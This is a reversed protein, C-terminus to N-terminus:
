VAEDYTAPPIKMDYDPASPDHRQDSWITIHAQEKIVVNAVVEPVEANPEIPHLEDVGELCVGQLLLRM